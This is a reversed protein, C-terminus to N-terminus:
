KLNYLLSKFSKGYIYMIVLWQVIGSKFSFISFQESFYITESSTRIETLFDSVFYIQFLTFFLPKEREELGLFFLIKMIPYSKFYYRIVFRKFYSCNYMSHEIDKKKCPLSHLNENM